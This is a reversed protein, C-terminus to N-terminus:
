PPKEAGTLEINSNIWAVRLFDADYGTKSNIFKYSVNGNVIPQPKGNTDSDAWGDVAGLGAVISEPEEFSCGDFTFSDEESRRPQDFGLERYQIDSDKYQKKFTSNTM